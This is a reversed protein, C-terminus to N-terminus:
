ITSVKALYENPTDFDLAFHLRKSNYYNIWTELKTNLDELNTYDIDNEQYFEEEDTRHSREVCGNQDPTHIWTYQHKIGLRALYEVFEKQFEPGNDTQILQITVGKLKAKLKLRSVFDISNVINFAKYGLAFRWKSTVDIATYQYKKRPLHKTDIQVLEGPYKARNFLKSKARKRKHRVVILNRKRWWNYVTKPSCPPTRGEKIWQRYLYYHSKRPNVRKWECIEVVLSWPITNINVPKRSQSKLTSLNYPNYRGEWKYFTSKGIGFLRCLQRVNVKGEKKMRFYADMIRLRFQADSDLKTTRFKM